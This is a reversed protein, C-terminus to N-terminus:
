MSDLIRWLTKQAAEESKRIEEETLQKPAVRPKVTSQSIKDLLDKHEDAPIKGPYNLILLSFLQEKWFYEQERKLLDEIIYAKRLDEDKEKSYNYSNFENILYKSLEGDSSTVTNWICVPVPHTKIEYYEEKNLKKSLLVM